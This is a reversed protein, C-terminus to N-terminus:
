LEMRTQSNDNKEKLLSLVLGYRDALWKAGAAPYEVLLEGTQPIKMSMTYGKYDYLIKNGEYRLNTIHAAIEAYTM